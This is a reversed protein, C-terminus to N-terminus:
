NGEIFLQREPGNFTVRAFIHLPLLGDASPSGSERDVIVAAVDVLKTSGVRLGRVVARRAPRTGTLTTLGTSESARTVNPATDVASEFLVLTETGTDPVFRLVHHDQPLLVLFRDDQPELEFVTGRHPPKVTADHWVITRKRYDITYRLAALVDQGIVGQVKQGSAAVDSLNLDAPSALTALVGSAAVEGITLHDIRAVLADKRGSASMMTTRAVVTAGLKTALERSIVSGSSGTDLLFPTPGTGNVIVPVIIAGQPTLHFPLPVSAAATAVGHVILFALLGSAKM